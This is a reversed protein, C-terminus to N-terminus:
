MYTKYRTKTEFKLKLNLNKHFIFDVLTCIIKIKIRSTYRYTHNMYYISIYQKYLLDTRVDTNHGMLVLM